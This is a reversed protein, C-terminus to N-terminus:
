CGVGLYLFLAAGDVGGFGDLSDAHLLMDVGLLRASANGDLCLASANPWETGVADSENGDVFGQHRPLETPDLWVSCYSRSGPPFRNVCCTRDHHLDGILRCLIRSWSRVDVSGQIAEEQFMRPRDTVDFDPLDDISLAFPEKKETHETWQFMSPVFREGIFQVGVRDFEHNRRTMIGRVTRMGRPKEHRKTAIGGVAVMRDSAVVTMGNNEWATKERDKTSWPWPQHKLTSSIRNPSLEEHRPRAGTVTGGNFPETAAFGRRTPSPSEISDQENTCHFQCTLFGIPRERQRGGHELNSGLCTRCACATPLLVVAHSCSELTTNLHRAYQRSDPLTSCIFGSQLPSDDPDSYGPTRWRSRRANADHGHTFDRSSATTHRGRVGRFTRPPHAEDLLLDTARFAGDTAPTMTNQSNLTM